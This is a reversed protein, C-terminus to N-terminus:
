LSDFGVLSVCPEKYNNTYSHKTNAPIEIRDGPRLLIQNGAINCLLEGKCIVRVELFTHYHEKVTQGEIIIEENYDQDENIHYCNRIEETTLNKDGQWRYIIM